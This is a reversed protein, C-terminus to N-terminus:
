MEEKEKRKEKEGIKERMKEHRSWISVDTWAFARCVISM